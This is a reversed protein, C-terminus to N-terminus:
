YQLLSKVNYKKLVDRGKFNELEILFIIATVTAGLSEIMEATAKATGGTALVDDIIVVKLGSSQTMNLELEDEGYELGYKASITPKPLKGKKRALFLPLGSNIAIPTAFLFGRSEIGVIADIAPFESEPMLNRLHTICDEFARPDALLPTIDRFMVGPVPFDPVDGIFKKIVEAM